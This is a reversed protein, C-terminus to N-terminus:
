SYARGYACRKNYLYDAYVSMGDLAELMGRLATRERAVSITETPTRCPLEELKEAVRNRLNTQLKDLKEVDELFEPLPHLDEADPYVDTGYETEAEFFGGGGIWEKLVVIDGDYYAREGVNWGRKCTRGGCLLRNDAAKNIPAEPDDTDEFEGMHAAMLRIIRNCKDCLRPYDTVYDTM